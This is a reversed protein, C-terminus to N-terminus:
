VTRVKYRAMIFAIVVSVFIFKTANAPTMTTSRLRSQIREEDPVEHQFCYDHYINLSDQYAKRTGHQALHALRKELLTRAPPKLAEMASPGHNCFTMAKDSAACRQCFRWALAPCKSCSFYLGRLPLICGHCVSAPWTENFCRAQKLEDEWPAIEAMSDWGDTRHALLCRYLLAQLAVPHTASLMLKYEQHVSSLHQEASEFEGNSLYLMGLGLRCQLQTTSSLISRADDSEYLIRSATDYKGQFVYLHGLRIYAFWTDDHTAGHKRRRSEYVDQMLLTAPIYEGLKLQSTCLNLALFCTSPHDKGQISVARDYSRRRWANAERLQNLYSYAMGIMNM